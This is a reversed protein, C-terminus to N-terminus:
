AFDGRIEELRLVLRNVDDENCSKLTRGAQVDLELQLIALRMDAIRRMQRMIEAHQRAITATDMDYTPGLPNREQKMEEVMRLAEHHVSM